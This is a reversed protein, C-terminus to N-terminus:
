PLEHMSADGRQRRKRQRASGKGEICKSLHILHGRNDRVFKAYLGGAVLVAVASIAAPYQFQEPRFFAITTAYSCLEFFNQFSAELSSFSGRSDADVGEQIIIQVCLDFGWLGVRSAIVGIVLGFAAVSPTRMVWFFGFAGVLCTIQWNIFWLGGRLPGVRNMATPALWTASLEVATSLTRLVGIQASSLGVSLLYTVMQGSFSLVTFYLLCLAMSPLFVTDRIYSSIAKYFSRTQAVCFTGLRWISPVESVASSIKDTNNGVASRAQLAPVMYYVRAIAFYEILVSSADMGLVAAIAITTSYGDVLAVALPGVLKCVLDIRRMQSNLVELGCQSTEAVVVVWDREIAIINMISGLKEVCALLVLMAILLPRFGPIGLIDTALAWFGLCSLIVAGRQGVISIRVVKLRDRQDVYRGVLPAFCIASAARVLAYVSSPLLTGPFIRALFLVAGFEFVRSNWTSLFHSVYLRRNIDSQKPIEPLNIVEFRHIQSRGRPLIRPTPSTEQVRSAVQALFPVEEEFSPERHSVVAMGSVEREIPTSISSTPM